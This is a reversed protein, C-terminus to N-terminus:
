SIIIGLYNVLLKIKQKPDVIHKYSNRSRQKCSRCHFVTLEKKLKNFIHELEKLRPIRKFFPLNSKITQCVRLTSVQFKGPMEISIVSEM